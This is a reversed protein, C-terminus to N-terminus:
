SDMLPPDEGPITRFEPPLLPGDDTDIYRMGSPFSTPYLIENAEDPTKPELSVGGPLLLDDDDLQKQQKQQLRITHFHKM